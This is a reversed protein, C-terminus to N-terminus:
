TSYATACKRSMDKRLMLFQVLANTLFYASMAIAMGIIGFKYFAVIKLPIYVTFVAASIKSPTRTNGMAYFGNATVQVVAGGVLTGTLALMTVLMTQINRESFGATYVVFRVVPAGVILILCGAMTVLLVLWLRARFAKRYQIWNDERAYVALKPTMPGIVAKGLMLVASAYIQQAVYLLSLTGTNTMSTLFRDLMPDTRLYTQGPLLPKFRLWVDKIVQSRWSPWSFRGLIPLLFAMKLSNYFVANLAAAWIGLRPITFVLFSLGAVNALVSSLEVWVFKHRAHYGAWLMVIAANLVMSVLQLRMLNVTLTKAPESFGPVFLPVWLGTSVFLVIGISIFICGGLSFLSWLDRRFQTDDRTAFLPVLVPLL